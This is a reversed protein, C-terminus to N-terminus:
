PRATNTHMLNCSRLFRFFCMIRVYYTCSLKANSRQLSSGCSVDSQLQSMSQGGQRRTGGAPPAHSIVLSILQLRLRKPARFNIYQLCLPILTSPVTCLVFNTNRFSIRLTGYLFISNRTFTKRYVYNYEKLFICTHQIYGYM